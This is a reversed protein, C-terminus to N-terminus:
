EVGVTTTTSSDRSAQCVARRLAEVVSAGCGCPLNDDDGNTVLTAVFGPAARGAGGPEDIRRIRAAAYGLNDLLGLLAEPTGDALGKVIKRMRRAQDADIATTNEQASM